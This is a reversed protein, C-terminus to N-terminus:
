SAVDGIYIDKGQYLGKLKASGIITEPSFLNGDMPIADLREQTIIKMNDYGGNNKVYQDFTPSTMSYKKGKFVLFVVGDVYKGDKGVAIVKGELPHALPLGSESTTTDETSSNRSKWWFYGGVVAALAVAGIIYEKKM